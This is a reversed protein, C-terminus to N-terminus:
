KNIKLSLPLSPSLSVFMLTHNDRVCWRGAVQGAVWARARVPFQVLSGKTQLGASLGSPQHALGALSLQYNKQM